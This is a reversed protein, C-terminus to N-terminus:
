VVDDTQCKACQFLKIGGRKCHFCREKQAAVTDKPDHVGAAYRYKERMEQM